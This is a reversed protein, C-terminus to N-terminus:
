PTPPPDAEKGARPFFLTLGAGPKGDWRTVVGEVLVRERADTSDGSPPQEVVPEVPRDKPADVRSGRAELTPGGPAGAPARGGAPEVRGAGGAGRLWLWAGLGLALATLLVLTRHM